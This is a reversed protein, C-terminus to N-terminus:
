KVVQLIKKFKEGEATELLEFLVTEYCTVSAGLERAKGIGVERNGPLRSGVADAVIQVEFGESRLDAATQYVCVHTEIGALLVQNRGSAGLTERFEPEGWSSFTMKTIPESAMLESLEGTTPGLGRPNQETWIIPVDLILIGEILRRLSDVLRDSEHIAPLLKEQVDTVVLITTDPSLM